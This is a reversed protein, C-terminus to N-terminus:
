LKIRWQLYVFRFSGTFRVCQNPEYMIEDTFSETLVFTILTCQEYCIAVENHAMPLAKFKLAFNMDHMYVTVHFTAIFIMLIIFTILVLLNYYEASM